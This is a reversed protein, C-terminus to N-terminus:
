TLARDSAGLPPLQLRRPGQQQPPLAAARAPADRRQVAAALAAGGGADGAGAGRAAARACRGTTSVPLLILFTVLSVLSVPNTQLLRVPPGYVLCALTTSTTVRVEIIENADFHNHMADSIVALGGGQVIEECGLREHSLHRLLSM